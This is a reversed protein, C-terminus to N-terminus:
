SCRPVHCIWLTSTLGHSKTWKTCKVQILIIVFLYLTRSKIIHTYTLATTYGNNINKVMLIRARHVRARTSM